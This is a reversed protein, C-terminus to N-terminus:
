RDPATMGIMSVLRGDRDSGDHCARRYSPWRDPQGYTDEDSLWVRSVGAAKLRAAVYGPLDFHPRGSPGERFFAANAPDEELFADPFDEGVEYNKQAITPGIAAAIRDIRAGLSLMTGICADTVGGIAGRWGAHAAGIVGAEEDALLVPACDATVIALILGPTATALADVEPREGDAFPTEVPLAKASHVQKARVVGASPDLARAADELAVHRDFFGHGFAISPAILRESMRGSGGTDAM